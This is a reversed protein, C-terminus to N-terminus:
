SGMNEMKNQGVKPRLVPSVVNQRAGHKKPKTRIILSSRIARQYATETRMLLSCIDSTDRTM